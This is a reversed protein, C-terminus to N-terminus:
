GCARKRLGAGGPAGDPKCTGPEKWTVVASRPPQASGKAWLTLAIQGTVSFMQLSVGARSPLTLDPPSVTLRQDGSLAEKGWSGGSGQGLGRGAGEAGEQLWQGTRM